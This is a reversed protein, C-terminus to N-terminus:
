KIGSLEKLIDLRVALAELITEKTRQFAPPVSSRWYLLDGYEDIYANVWNENYINKRYVKEATLCVGLGIKYQHLYHKIRNVDFMSTKIFEIHKAYYLYLLQQISMPNPIKSM